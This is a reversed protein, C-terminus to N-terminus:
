DMRLFRWIFLTIEETVAFYDYIIYTYYSVFGFCFVDFRMYKCLELNTSKPAEAGPWSPVNAYEAAKRPQLLHWCILKFQDCRECNATKEMVIAEETALLANRKIAKCMFQVLMQQLIIRGKHCLHKIM